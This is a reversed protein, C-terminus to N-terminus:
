FTGISMKNLETFSSIQVLERSTMILSSGQGSGLESKVQLLYSAYGGIFLSSKSGVWLYKKSGFLFFNFFKINKPSIKWFWVWVTSPQDSGVRTLFKSRSGDSCVKLYNCLIRFVVADYM